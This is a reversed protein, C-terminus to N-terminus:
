RMWLRRIRQSFARAYRHRETILAFSLLFRWLSRKSSVYICLYLLLADLYDLINPEELKLNNYNPLRRGLKRMIKLRAKLRKKTFRIIGREAQIIEKCNIKEIYIKKKLKAIQLIEEGVKTRSLCISNKDKTLEPLWASGFSIDAFESTADSCLTCRIPSFFSFNSFLLKWFELHSISKTSGDRLKISMIGPFEHRRYDIKKVEDKDIGIKKLAFETGLFNVGHGCFLGLHLIIKERLKQNLMEAKRIGHIHCPLGVVAFKGNEDLIKRIATNAPVPCYKSQSASIIEEKTTAIIVEPEIPNQLGMKTVLAGDIIGEELLYVLLGTVLGGSSANWRIEDDTSHGAYCGTFNGLIINEPIRSFFFRNLSHFNVSVGPCVKICTCCKKCKSSDLTPVYLGNSIQMVIANNPCIGACTGCGNCLNNDLAEKLPHNAWTDRM